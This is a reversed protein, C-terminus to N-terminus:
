AVGLEARWNQLFDNWTASDVAHSSPRADPTSAHLFFMWESLDGLQIFRIKNLGLHVFPTV